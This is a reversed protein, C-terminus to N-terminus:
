DKKCRRLHGTANKEMCVGLFGATDEEQELDIDTEHLKQALKEIDKIDKAWFLIDDVYCITLMREGVFLCPDFKSQKMDCAEMKSLLYQWFARPM